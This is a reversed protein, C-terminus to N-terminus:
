YAQPLDPRAELAKRAFVIAEERNGDRQATAALKLWDSAAEEDGPAIPSPEPAPVASAKPLGVHASGLADSAGGLQRELRAMNQLADRHGPQLALAKELSHRAEALLGLDIMLNGHNSLLSPEEPALELAREYIERARGLDRERRLAVGYVNLFHPDDGFSAELHDFIQRAEANSGQILRAIGKLRYLGPYNALDESVNELLEVAQQAQGQQILLEAQQQIAALTAPAPQSVVM